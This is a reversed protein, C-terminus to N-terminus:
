WRGLRRRDTLARGAPVAALAVVVVAFGAVLDTGLAPLNFLRESALILIAAVLLSLVVSFILDLPLEHRVPALSGFVRSEVGYAGSGELLIPTCASAGRGGLMLGRKIVWAFGPVLSFLLLYAGALYLWVLSIGGPEGLVVLALRGLGAIAATLVGGFPLVYHIMLEVFPQQTWIPLLRDIPRLLRDQEDPTLLADLLVSRRVLALRSAFHEALFYEVLIRPAFAGPYVEGRATNLFYWVDRKGRWRGRSTGMAILPLALARREVDRYADILDTLAKQWVEFRTEM